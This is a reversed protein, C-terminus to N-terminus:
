PRSTPPESSNVVPRAECLILGEPIPMLEEVEEALVRGIEPLAGQGELLEDVVVLVDLLLVLPDLRDLVLAVVDGVVEEGPEAVSEDGRELPFVDV